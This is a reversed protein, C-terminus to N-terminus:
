AIPAGEVEGLQIKEERTRQKREDELRETADQAALQMEPDLDQLKKKPKTRTAERDPEFEKWNGEHKSSTFQMEKIYNLQNRQQTNLGDIGLRTLVERGENVDMRPQNKETVLIKELLELGIRVLQSKNVILTQEEIVLYRAITALTQSKVRSQVVADNYTQNLM